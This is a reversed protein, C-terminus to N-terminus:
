IGKSNEQAQKVHEHLHTPRKKTPWPHHIDGLLVHMEDIEVRIESDGSFVLHISQKDPHLLTLLNYTRQGGKFSFNKHLVRTVNHIEIGTHTRFYLSEDGYNQEGHEWCFRNALARFVKTKPDYTMSMLPLLADQLHAAVIQLDELDKAILKLPKLDLTDAVNKDM